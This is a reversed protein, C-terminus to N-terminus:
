RGRRAPDDGTALVSALCPWLGATALAQGVYPRARVLRMRLGARAALDQGALLAAIGAADVFPVRALDIRLEAVGGLRVAAALARRLQGANDRDIEGTVEVVTADAHVRTAVALGHEPQRVGPYWHVPADSLLADRLWALAQSLLRSAHMQSIGLLDAIESQTHNGYFRLALIRRERPPMRCLLAAVTLRDELRGLEPDLAGLCDGLEGGEEAANPTHLSMPRYATGSASLAEAVEAETLGLERALEPLTPRQSKERTLRSNGAMVQAVLEQLRRPVRVGWARDRFHRKLEGTVTAIAYGSFGGRQPDYGDVAKLLGVLAVQELDELAEGRDRYRRALRQAVPAALRVLRERGAPKGAPRLQAFARAAADLAVLEGLGDGSPVSSVQEAEPCM